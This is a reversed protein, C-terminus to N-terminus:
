TDALEYYLNKRDILEKHTGIETIVGNNMAVIYDMNILTKIKHAVVIVTKNKMLKNYLTQMIIQESKADVSSTVEDLVLIPTDRLFARAVLLRQKQGYSFEKGHYQVLTDYQQPLSQIFDHINAMKAADIMEEETADLNSYIINERITRNFLYLDQNMYTILSYLYSSSFLRIDYGGIKIAGSQIPALNLLLSVLSSKGSGSYGVIGVRDGEKISLSLNEFLVANGTSYSFSVNEFTIDYSDLVFSDGSKLLLTNSLVKGLADKFKGVAESLKICDEVIYWLSETVDGNLSIFYPFDAKSLVGVQYQWILVFMCFCNYLVFIVSLFGNIILYWFDRKISRQQFEHYFPAIRKEEYSHRNLLRINLLNSFLDNFKAFLIMDFALISSNLEVGKKYGIYSASFFSVYLFCICCFLLKTQYFIFLSSSLLVLHAAFDIFVKELIVECNRVIEQIQNSLVDLDKKLLLNAKLIIERIFFEMMKTKMLPLTYMRVYTSLRFILFRALLCLFYMYIWPLMASLADSRSVEEFRHIIEKFIMKRFQIDAAWYVAAFCVFSLTGIYGKVCHNYFFTVFSVSESKFMFSGFFMLGLGSNFRYGLIQLGRCLWEAM